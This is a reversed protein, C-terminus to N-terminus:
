SEAKAKRKHDQPTKVEEAKARKELLRKIFVSKEIEERLTDVLPPLEGNEILHEQIEDGASDVDTGIIWAAIGRSVQLVSKKGSKRDFIDVGNESLEAIANFNLEPVDYTNGNIEITRAM